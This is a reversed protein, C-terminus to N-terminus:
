EDDGDNDGSPSGGADIAAFINKANNEDLDSLSSITVVDDSFDKVIASSGWAGINILVTRVTFEKEKKIRKFEKLFEPSIGASGDTIFLIDGKKFKQNKMIDLAKRLPAEFNTGGNLFKEAIDFVTDPKLAGYPIEYTSSDPASSAFGVYAYARKQKQAIELLALSLAKSWEEPKGDMSGSEDNCVIVPGRGQTKMSEKDYVLLQKEAYKRKFNTKTREDGLQMMESPLIDQIRNGTKVTKVSSSGDRSKKKVDEKAIERFRGILDTLKKLKKSDRLRTLARKKDEYTIRRNKDGGEMGWAQIFDQVERVEDNAVKASQQMAQHMQQMPNQGGQNAQQMQQQAQQMQQQAQQQQKAAADALAKAQEPTMGPGSQSQSQGSSRQAQQQQGGQMAQAAADAQQQAQNMQQQADHMQNLLDFFQDGSMTQGSPDQQAQENMQKRIEKIRVVAEDQMVETGIASSLVDHRTHMRLKHYEETDMLEAMIDRNFQSVEEVEDVEKLRPQHKYLALFADKSLNEFTKIEKSGSALSKQMNKSQGLIDEYIEADFEFQEIVEPTKVVPRDKLGLTSAVTTRHSGGKVPASTEEDAFFSDFGELLGENNESSM